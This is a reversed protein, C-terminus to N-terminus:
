GPVVAWMVLLGAGSSRRQLFENLYRFESAEGIRKIM